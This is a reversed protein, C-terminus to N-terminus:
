LSFSLKNKAVTWTECKIEFWWQQRKINENKMWNKKIKACM